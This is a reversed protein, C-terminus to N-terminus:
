LWFLGSGLWSHKVTHQSILMILWPFVFSVLSSFCVSPRCLVSAVLSSSPKIHFPYYINFMELHHLKITVCFEFYSLISVRSIQSTPHERTIFHYKKKWILPVVYLQNLRTEKKPLMLVPEIWVSIICTDWLQCRALDAVSDSLLM